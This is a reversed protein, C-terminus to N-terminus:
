GSLSGLGLINGESDKLWATKSGDPMTLIGDVTRFDDGFDYEEFVAGQARLEAVSTDVDEVEIAMATAQNTGAFQSAYLLFRTGGAEYWADGNEDIEVPEIQLVSAYWAKAREMDAAPLTAAFRM